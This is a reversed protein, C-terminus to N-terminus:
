GRQQAAVLADSIRTVTFIYICVHVSEQAADILEVIRTLIAPDTADVKDGAAKFGATKCNDHTFVVENIEDTKISRYWRLFLQWVVESVVSFGLIGGTVYLAKELYPNM